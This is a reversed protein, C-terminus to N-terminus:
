RGPRPGGTPHEAPSGKEWRDGVYTWEVGDPGVYVADGGEQLPVSALSPDEPHLWFLEEWEDILDAAVGPSIEHLWAVRVGGKEAYVTGPGRPFNGSAIFKLAAEVELSLASRRPRPPDSM